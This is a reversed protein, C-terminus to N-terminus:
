AIKFSYVMYGVFFIVALLILLEIIFQKKM